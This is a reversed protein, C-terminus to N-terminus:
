AFYDANIHIGLNRVISVPDVHNTVIVNIM